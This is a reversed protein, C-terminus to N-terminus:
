ERALSLNIEQGAVIRMKELHEEGDPTKLTLTHIGPLLYLKSPVGDSSGERATRKTYPVLSAAATRM